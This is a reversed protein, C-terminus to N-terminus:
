FPLNGLGETPIVEGGTATVVAQVQTEKPHYTLLNTETSPREIGNKDTYTSGDKAERISLVAVFPKKTKERAKLTEQVTTFLDKASVINAMYLRAEAKKDDNANHVMLRSVNEVTYPLAAESLWLRHRGQGNENEVNFQIGLTGTKAQVLEVSTVVVDHIGIGLYSAGGKDELINKKMVEAADKDVVVDNKELEGFLSAQLKEEETQVM